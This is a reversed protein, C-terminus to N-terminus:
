KQMRRLAEFTGLDISETRNPLHINLLINEESNEAPHLMIHFSEGTDYVGARRRNPGTQAIWPSDAAVRVPVKANGEGKLEILVRLPNPGRVLEIAKVVPVVEAHSSSVLWGQGLVGLPLALIAIVSALGLISRPRAWSLDTGILGRSQWLRRISRRAPREIWSHCIGSLMLTLSITLAFVMWAVALPAERLEAGITLVWISEALNIIPLHLLYAALSLHGLRDLWYSQFLRLNRTRTGLASAALAVLGLVVFPRPWHFHMSSLTLLALVALVLPTAWAEIAGLKWLRYLALGCLFMPIARTLVFPGKVFWFWPAEPGLYAFGGIPLATLGSGSALLKAALPFLVSPIAPLLVAMLLLATKPTKQIAWILWPVFAYLAFEATLSWSPPNLWVWDFWASLGLAEILLGALATSLPTDSLGALVMLRNALFAALASFAVMPLCRAIRALIFNAYNRGSVTSSFSTAYVHALVIGSLLFFFDVMLFLKGIAPSLGALGLQPLREQLHLVLVALAAIGRLAHLSAIHGCDGENRNVPM